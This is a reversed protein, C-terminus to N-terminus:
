LRRQSRRRRRARHDALDRLIKPEAGLGYRSLSRSAPRSVAHGPHRRPPRDPSRPRRRAVVFRRIVDRWVLAMTEAAEDLMPGFRGTMPLDDLAAWGRLDDASPRSTSSSPGPPRARGGPRIRTALPPCCCRRGRRCCPCWMTTTTCSTRSDAATRVAAPRRRRRGPPGDPLRRARTRERGRHRHRRRGRGATARRPLHRSDPDPRRRGPRAAAPHGPLWPAVDDDYAGMEGGLSIVADHSSTDPPIEDGAHPAACTSPPERAASGSGLRLLPDSPDHELVLITTM